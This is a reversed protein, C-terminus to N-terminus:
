VIYKTGKTFEIEFSRISATNTFVPLSENMYNINLLLFTSVIQSVNKSTLKM